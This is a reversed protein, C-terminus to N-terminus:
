DSTGYKEKEKQLRASEQAEMKATKLAEQRAQNRAKEVTLLQMEAKAQASLTVKRMQEIAQAEKQLKTVKQMLDMLKKIQATNGFKISGMTKQIEGASKRLKSTMDDLQKMTKNASERIGKFIDESTFLDQSSIKKAM